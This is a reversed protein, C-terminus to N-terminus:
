CCVKSRAKTDEKQAAKIRKLKAADAQAQHKVAQQAASSQVEARAFDEQAKSAQLM